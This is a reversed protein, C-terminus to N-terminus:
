REALQIKILAAAYVVSAATELEAANAGTLEAGVGNNVGSVKFPLNKHLWTLQRIRVVVIQRLKACLDAGPQACDERHHSNKAEAEALNKHESNPLDIESTMLEADTRFAGYPCAQYLERGVGIERVHQGRAAFTFLRFVVDDGVALSPWPFGEAYDGDPVTHAAAGAKGM